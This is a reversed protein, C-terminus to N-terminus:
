SSYSRDGKGGGGVGSRPLLPESVDSVADGEDGLGTMPLGRPLLRESSGPGTEEEDRTPDAVALVALNLGTTDVPASKRDSLDGNGDGRSCIGETLQTATGEETADLSADAAKPAM